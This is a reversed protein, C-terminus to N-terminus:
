NIQLSLECLGKTLNGRSPFVMCNGCLFHRIFIVLTQKDAYLSSFKLKKGDEDFIEYEGAKQLTEASLIDSSSM